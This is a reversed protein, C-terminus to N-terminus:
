RAVEKSIGSAFVIRAALRLNHVARMDARSAGFSKQPTAEGYPDARVEAALDALKAINTDDLQSLGYLDNARSRCEHCDDGLVRRPLEHPGHSM